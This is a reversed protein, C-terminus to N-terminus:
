RTVERRRAVPGSTAGDVVRSALAVMAGKQSRVGDALGAAVAASGFFVGAQMAEIEDRGLPRRMAVWDFFLGALQDVRAQARAIVGDTLPVNPNGDAKYDGSSVVEVRYGAAANAATQDCLEGIVGISGVGGAPPLYIRDAVAAIAYAASFASEDVYAVVAKGSKSAHQRMARCCEFLGEVEGGPSGIRLMVGAASSELAGCFREVIADYGDWCYAFQSLPGRVDVVALGDIMEVPQSEPATLYEADM